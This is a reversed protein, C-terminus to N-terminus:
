TAAAAAASPEAANGNGIIEIAALLRSTFIPSSTLIEHDTDLASVHLAVPLHLPIFVFEPFSVTVTDPSTIVIKPQRTGTLHALM